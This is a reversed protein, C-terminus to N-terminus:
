VAFGCGGWGGFHGGGVGGGGGRGEDGEFGVGGEHGGEQVREADGGGEGHVVDVGERVRVEEGEDGPRGEGEQEDEGDRGRVLGVPEGLVGQEGRVRAAAGCRDCRDAKTLEPSSTLSATM